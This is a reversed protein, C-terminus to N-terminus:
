DKKRRILTHYGMERRPETPPAMLKRIAEFVVAFKQDYKSEMEALRKALDVHTALLERLRVFARMIEINVAIARPSHLVSSLMAIGQETFVFPLHKVNRGRNLIVSQSRSRPGAQAPKSRQDLPILQLEDWTLTFMFDPPFRDANRRVAQKLVRTEVGYLAALDRDLM